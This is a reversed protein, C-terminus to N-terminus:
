VRASHTFWEDITFFEPLYLEDDIYFNSVYLNHGAFNFMGDSRLCDARFATWAARCLQELDVIAQEASSYEVPLVVDCSYTCCDGVTYCMVLRM